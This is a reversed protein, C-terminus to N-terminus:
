KLTGTIIVLTLGVTFVGSFILKTLGPNEKELGPMNGGTKLASVSGFGIFIGGLLSLLILQDLTKSAKKVGTHTMVKQRLHPNCRYQREEEQDQKQQELIKMKEMEAKQKKEQKKQEAASLIAEIPNEEETDKGLLEDEIRRLRSGKKSNSMLALIAKEYFQLRQNLNEITQSNPTSGNMTSSSSPEMEIEVSTGGNYKPDGGGKMSSAPHNTNSSPNTTARRQNSSSTQTQEFDEESTQVNVLMQSFSNVSASSSLPTTNGMSVGNSNNTAIYEPRSGAMELDEFEDQLKTKTKKQSSHFM